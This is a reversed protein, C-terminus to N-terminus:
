RRVKFVFPQCFEVVRQEIWKLSEKPIMGWRCSIEGSTNTQPDVQMSSTVAQSVGIQEATCHSNYRITTKCLCFVESFIFYYAVDNEAIYEAMNSSLESVKVFVGDRLICPILPTMGQGFPVIADVGFDRQYLDMGDKVKYSRIKVDFRMAIVGNSDMRYYIRKIFIMEKIKHVMVISICM